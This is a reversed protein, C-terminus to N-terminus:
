RGMIDKLKNFISFNKNYLKVFLSFNIIGLVRPMLRDGYSLFNVLIDLKPVWWFNYLNLIGIFSILWYILTSIESTAVLITLYPFLPYLYREHMNTLFMWSSFASLALAWIVTKFDQKKWISYIIPVFSITFLIYGWHQYTLGLFPLSDPREHIGAVAAWLNFANATIVHLQQVFIKQSYLNFLWGFPEGKSFPLTIIGIAILSCVVALLYKIPKYKQRIAVIFWVPAFVLLSAKIYISLAFSLLSLNLRKKLLFYFSLLAFFNIVSDYQGWVSSNYWVVPNILWLVAAWEKKTWKYLVYAIGVDALIAPLKLLAPYLNSEFFTIVGSPFVAISVNLWWFFGFIWEFLKRIGAFIYVTGPPQNPWTYNWINSEPAYFKGAGYEFFRIGWDMHNRVDPHWIVFALLVRLLLLVLLILPFSLFKKM